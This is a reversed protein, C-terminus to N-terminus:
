SASGSQSCYSAAVRVRYPVGSLSSTPSNSTMTCPMSVSPADLRCLKWTVTCFVLSAGSTPVSRDSRRARSSLAKLKM